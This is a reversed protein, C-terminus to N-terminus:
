QIFNNRRIFPFTVNQQEQLKLGQNSPLFLFWASLFSVAKIQSLHLEPLYPPTHTIQTKTESGREGERERNSRRTNRRLDRHGWARRVM